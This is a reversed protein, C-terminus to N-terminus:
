FDNLMKFLPHEYKPLPCPCQFRGAVQPPKMKVHIRYLTRDYLSEFKAHNYSLCRLMTYDEYVNVWYEQM